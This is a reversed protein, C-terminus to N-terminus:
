CCSAMGDFYHWCWVGVLAVPVAVWGWSSVLSGVIVGCRAVIRRVADVLRWMQAGWIFPACEDPFFPWM